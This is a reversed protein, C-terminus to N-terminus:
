LPVQYYTAPGSSGIREILGREVLDQLDYRLTRESIDPLLEQIDKLRCNGSQRIKEYISSQREEASYGLRTGADHAVPIVAQESVSLGQHRKEIQVLTVPEKEVEDLIKKEDEQRVPDLTDSSGDDHKKHKISIKFIKEIESDPLTSKAGLEAIVSRMNDIERILIQAATQSFANTDAGLRILYEVVDASREVEQINGRVAHELISISINELHEALGKRDISGAIRILAYSIEFAKKTLYNEMTAPNSQM